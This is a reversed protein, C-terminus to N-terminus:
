FRYSLTARITQLSLSAKLQGYECAWSFVTQCDEFEAPVPTGSSRDFFKATRAKLNGLDTYRYEIDLSTRDNLMREIGGGFITGGLWENGEVLANGAYGDVMGSVAFSARADSVGYGVLGYLLTREGFLFGLRGGGAASTRVTVRTIADADGYNDTDPNGYGVFHESFGYGSTKAETSGFDINGFVGLVIGSAQIDYGAKLSGFGGYQSLLTDGFNGDKRSTGGYFTFEYVDPPPLLNQVGESYSAWADNKSKLYAGGGGAGIYPGTWNSYLEIEAGYSDASQSAATACAGIAALCVTLWNKM